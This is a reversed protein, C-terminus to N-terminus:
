WELPDLICSHSVRTIRTCPRERLPLPTLSVRPKRFGQNCSMLTGKAPTKEEGPIPQLGWKKVPSGSHGGLMAPPRGMTIQSLFLSTSFLINGQELVIAKGRYGEREKTLPLVAGSTSIHLNFTTLEKFRRLINYHDTIVGTKEQFLITQNYPWPFGTEMTSSWLWKIWHILRKTKYWNTWQWM